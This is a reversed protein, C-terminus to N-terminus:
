AADVSGKQLMALQQLEGAVRFVGDGDVLRGAERALRHCLRPHEFLATVADAVRAITRDDAPWGSDVAAGRCAFARTTVHQAATVPLAVAPVRLACAEYLTIGGAVVAVQAAALEEALGDTAVTWSGRTLLPLSRPAAFGAAVRIDIEPIRAALARCLGGALTHVHAGGGLAILVRNPAPRIAAARTQAISPDLIAFQPGRLHPVDIPRTVPAIGGDIVLDSEVLAIGGDHISAVPVGLPRAKRVWKGAEDQNPDDIVILAPQRAALEEDNSEDLLSWGLSEATAQTKLSGRVSVLPTVGMARAISRSRMLHGFGIAPGAAVRFVVTLPAISM